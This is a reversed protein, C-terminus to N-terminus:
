KEKKEFQRMFHQAHAQSMQGSHVKIDCWGQALMKAEPVAIHLVGGVSLLTISVILWPKIYKHFNEEVSPPSAILVLGLAILGVISLVILITVVDPTNKCFTLVVCEWYSM